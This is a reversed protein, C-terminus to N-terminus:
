AGSLLTTRDCALYFERQLASSQSSLLEFHHWSEPRGPRTVLEKFLSQVRCM